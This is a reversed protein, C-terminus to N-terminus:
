QLIIDSDINLKQHLKKAMNFTLERKGRLYESVRSSTTELIEALDKQKLGREYMKLKIVDILKPKNTPFNNEEYDAVLESINNLEIFHPSETSTNNDVIMLLEDIRKTLIDYEKASIM